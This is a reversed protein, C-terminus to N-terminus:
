GMLIPVIAEQMLILTAAVIIPMDLHLLKAIDSIMLTDSVFLVSSPIGAKALRCRM